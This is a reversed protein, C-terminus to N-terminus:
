TNKRPLENRTVENDDLEMEPELEQKNVAEKELLKEQFSQHNLVPTLRQYTSQLNREPMMLQAYTILAAETSEPEHHNNLEGLNVQVGRIRNSALALGFNMRNLLSGTNIWYQARDPFGTPAAYSYLKQGMKSLAQFLPLANSVDANLARLTSIAYEFPSKTKARLAGESWFEISQVMTLLVKSIDGDEKLFTDAMKNILSEPPTDSVFRTALKKSIFKATSPHHALMNLLEVGEEYGGGSKFTKGLVTKQKSDHRNIAFLFDGNHVFGKAALQTPEMKELMKHMKQNYGEAFPYITWGTLVRAAETVDHQTYGGDVGMTHLEMIERAYNENLGMEKKKGKATKNKSLTNRAQGRKALHTRMPETKNEFDENTIASNFNDLYLLMAPAQATAMLLDAFKGTVNPRIVDREYAPIFQACQPKTASVNFHNF